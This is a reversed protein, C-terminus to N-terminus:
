LLGEILQLAPNTTWNIEGAGAYRIKMNRDIVFTYPLGEIDFRNSLPSDTGKFMSFPAEQKVVNKLVRLGNESNEDMNVGLVVFGRKEFRRQLEYLGPMEHLCPGCWGAWFNVLTVKGKLAATSLTKGDLGQLELNDPLYMGESLPGGGAEVNKQALSRYANHAILFFAAFGLLILWVKKRRSLLAM